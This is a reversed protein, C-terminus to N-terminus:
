FVCNRLLIKAEKRISRENDVVGYPIVKNYILLTNQKGICLNVTVIIDVVGSDIGVKSLSKALYDCSDGVIGAMRPSHEERLVENGKLTYTFIDDKVSLVKAECIYPFGVYITKGLRDM